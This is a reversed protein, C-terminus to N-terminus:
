SPSTHAKKVASKRGATPKLQGVNGARQSGVANPNRWALATLGLREENVSHLFARPNQSDISPHPEQGAEEPAPLWRLGTRCRGPM